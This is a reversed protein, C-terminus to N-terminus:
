IHLLSLYRPVRRHPQGRKLRRRGDVNQCTNTVPDVGSAVGGSVPDTAGCAINVSDLISYTAQGGTYNIVPKTKDIKFSLSNATEM